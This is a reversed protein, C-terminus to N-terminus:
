EFNSKTCAIHGTNNANNVTYELMIADYFDSWKNNEGMKKMYFVLGNCMCDGGDNACTAPVERPKPECFM